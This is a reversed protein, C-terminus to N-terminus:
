KFVKIISVTSSDIYLKEAIGGSISYVIQGNSTSDSDTASVTFVTEEQTLGEQVTTTYPTGVFMPSNDNADLITINIMTVSLRM